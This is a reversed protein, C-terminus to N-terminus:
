VIKAHVYDKDSIHKKQPKSYFRDISPLETDDFKDMSDMYEYPCAGKRLSSLLKKLDGKCLKFTSPLRKILNNAVVKKKFNCTNCKILIYDKNRLDKAKAILDLIM